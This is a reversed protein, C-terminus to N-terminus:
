VVSKRDVETTDLMQAATVGTGAEVDAATPDTLAPKLLAFAEPEGRQAASTELQHLARALVERAWQRHYLTEPTDAAVPERAFRAELEPHGSFEGRITKLAVLKRLKLHEAVFVAGMGGYAALKEFAYQPLLANMEEVSPVDFPPPHHHPAEQSM